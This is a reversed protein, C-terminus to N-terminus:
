RVAYGSVKWSGDAERMPVVTEIAGAKNAFDTQYQILVYEGAPAGPISRTYQASALKRSKVAGFPTRAARLAQEWQAQTVAGRFAAAGQAWSEAYNADDALALWSTAAGTAAQTAAQNSAQADAAPAVAADQAGAPPVVVALSLLAAAAFRM